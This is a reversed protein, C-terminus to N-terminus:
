SNLLGDAASLVDTVTIAALCAFGKICNHALCETCGVEKHLVVSNKNVPGWRKPGIGPQNRGFISILPVGVAAAIHM